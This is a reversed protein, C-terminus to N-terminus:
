WCMNHGRTVFNMLNQWFHTSFMYIFKNGCFAHWDGMVSRVKTHIETLLIQKNSFCTPILHSLLFYIFYFLGKHKLSKKRFANLTMWISQCKLKGHPLLIGIAQSLFLLVIFLKGQKHINCNLTWSWCGDTQWNDYANNTPCAWLPINTHYKIALFTAVKANKPFNKM